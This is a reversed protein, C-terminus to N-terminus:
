AHTVPLKLTAELINFACVCVENAEFAVAKEKDESNLAITKGALGFRNVPEGCLLFLRVVHMQAVIM